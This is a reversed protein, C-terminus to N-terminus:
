ILLIALLSFTHQTIQTDKLTNNTCNASFIELHCSIEIGYRIIYKSSQFNQTDTVTTVIPFHIKELNNKAEWKAKFKGRWKIERQIVVTICSYMDLKRSCFSYTHLFGFFYHQLNKRSSCALWGAMEFFSRQVARELHTCFIFSRLIIVPTFLSPLIIKFWQKRFKSLYTIHHTHM